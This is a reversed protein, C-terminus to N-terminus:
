RNDELWIYRDDTLFGAQNQVLRALIPPSRDSRTGRLHRLWRNPACVCSFDCITRPLLEPPLTIGLLLNGNEGRTPKWERRRRPQPRRTKKGRTPKNRGMDQSCPRKKPYGCRASSFPCPAARPISWHARSGLNDLPSPLLQPQSQAWYPRPSPMGDMTSLEIPTEHQLKSLFCFSRFKVVGAERDWAFDETLRPFPCCSSATAAWRRRRSTSAAETTLSWFKRTCPNRTLAWEKSDRADPNLNAGPPASPNPPM